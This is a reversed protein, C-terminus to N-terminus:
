RTIELQELAPYKPQHLAIETDAQDPLIRPNGYYVNPGLPGKMSEIISSVQNWSVQDM